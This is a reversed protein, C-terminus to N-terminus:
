LEKEKTPKYDELIDEEYEYGEIGIDKPNFEEPKLKDKKYSPPTIKLINVIGKNADDSM